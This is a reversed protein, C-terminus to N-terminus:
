TNALCPQAGVRDILKEFRHGVDVGPDDYRGRTEVVVDPLGCGLAGVIGALLDNQDVAVLETSEDNVVTEVRQQCVAGSGLRIDFEAIRAQMWRPAASIPAAANLELM